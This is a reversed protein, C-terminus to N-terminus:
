DHGPIIWSIRSAALNETPSPKTASTVRGSIGAWTPIWRLDKQIERERFPSSQAIERRKLSPNLSFKSAPDRKEVPRLPQYPPRLGGGTALFGEASPRLTERHNVLMGWQRERSLQSQLRFVSRLSHVLIKLGEASPRFVKPM